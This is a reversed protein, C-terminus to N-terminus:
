SSAPLGHDASVVGRSKPIRSRVGSRSRNTSRMSTACWRMGARAVAPMARTTLPGNVKAGSPLGSMPGTGPM